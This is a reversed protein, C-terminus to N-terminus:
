SAKGTGAALSGYLADIEQTFTGWGLKDAALRQAAAAITRGLAPDEYLRVIGEALAASDLVIFQFDGGLVAPESGDIDCATNECPKVLVFGRSRNDADGVHGLDVAEFLFELASVLEFSVKSYATELQKRDVELSALSINDIKMTYHRIADDGRNRVDDIIRTVAEEAGMEAGLIQKMRQRLAPTDPAALATVRRSLRAKAEQFGQVVLM